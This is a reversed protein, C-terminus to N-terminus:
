DTFIFTTILNQCTVISIYCISFKMSILLYFLMQCHGPAHFYYVLVAIENVGINIRVIHANVIYSSVDTDYWNM